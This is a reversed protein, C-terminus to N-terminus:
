QHHAREGLLRALGLRPAPALILSQSASPSVGLTGDPQRGTGLAVTPVNSMCFSPGPECGVRIPTGDEIGPDASTLTASGTGSGYDQQNLQASVTLTEPGLTRSHSHVGLVSAGLKNSRVSLINLQNAAGIALSKSPFGIRHSLTM